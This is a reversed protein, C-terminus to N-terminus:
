ALSVSGHGRSGRSCENEYGWILGRLRGLLLPWALECSLEWLATRERVMGAM